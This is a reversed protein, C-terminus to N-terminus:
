KSAQKLLDKLSLSPTTDVATLKTNRIVKKKKKLEVKSTDASSALKNFKDVRSFTDLLIGTQGTYFPHCNACVEVGIKGESTSYAEFETKCSACLYTTIHTKPHISSKM